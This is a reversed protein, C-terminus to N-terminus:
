CDEGAPWWRGRRRRSRRRRVCLPRLWLNAGARTTIGLANALRRTEDLYAKISPDAMDRRLRAAFRSVPGLVPFEKWVIRLKGDSKLLDMVPKLSRKCYGCRYDFFEVLTVDGDPNGSVPSIPHELGRNCPKGSYRSLRVGGARAPM